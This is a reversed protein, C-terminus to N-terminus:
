ALNAYIVAWRCLIILLEFGMGHLHM